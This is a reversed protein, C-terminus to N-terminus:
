KTKIHKKERQFIIKELAILAAIDETLGLGSFGPMNFYPLWAEAEIDGLDETHFIVRHGHLILSMYWNKDDPEIKPYSLPIISQNRVILDKELNWRRKIIPNNEYDATIEIDMLWNQIYEHKDAPSLENFEEESINLKDVNFNDVEEQVKKQSIVEGIIGDVITLKSETSIEKFQKYGVVFYPFLSGRAVKLKLETIQRRWPSSLSATKGTYYKDGVNFGDQMGDFDISIIPKDNEDCLTYDISTKKLRNVDIEEIVLPVINYIDSLDVLNETNFINLFPLNHYLKYKKGWTHELNYFNRRESNSAFVSTKVGM